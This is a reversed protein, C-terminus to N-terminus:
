ETVDLLESCLNLIKIIKYSPSTYAERLDRIFTKTRESHNTSNWNDADIKQHVAEIALLHANNQTSFAYRGDASELYHFPGYRKWVLTDREDVYDDPLLEHQRKGKALIDLIEQPSLTERFYKKYSVYDDDNKPCPRGRDTCLEISDEDFSVVTWFDEPCKFPIVRPAIMGSNKGLVGTDVLVHYNFCQSSGTTEIYMYNRFFAVRLRKINCFDTDFKSIEYAQKENVEYNLMHFWNTEDIELGVPATVPIYFLADAAPELRFGVKYHVRGERVSDNKIINSVVIVPQQISNEKTTDRSKLYVQGIM